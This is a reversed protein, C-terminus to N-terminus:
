GATEGGAKQRVCKQVEQAVSPRETKQIRWACDRALGEGDAGYQRRRTHMNRHDWSAQERLQCAGMTVQLLRIVRGQQRYKTQRLKGAALFKPLSGVFLGWCCVAKRSRLM